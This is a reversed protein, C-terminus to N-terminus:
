TDTSLKAKTRIPKFSLCDELELMSFFIIKRCVKPLYYEKDNAAIWHFWGFRQSVLM